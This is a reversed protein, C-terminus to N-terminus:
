VLLDKFTLLERVLNQLVVDRDFPQNLAVHSLAMRTSRIPVVLEAEVEYNSTEFVLVVSLLNKIVAIDIGQLRSAGDFYDRLVSQEFVQSHSLEILSIQDM